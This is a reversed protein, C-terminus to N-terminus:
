RYSEGRLRIWGGERRGRPDRHTWHLVGGRENWEYEGQVEVRDGRGLPVRAALDLNHAVLVTHGSPLKLIFRQHRSGRLDDLLVRDVVGEVRVVVDSRGEEFLREVVSSGTAEAPASHESSRPETPWLVFDGVRLRGERLWQVGALVLGAILIVLARRPGKRRGMFRENM